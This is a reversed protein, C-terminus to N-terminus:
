SSCAGGRRLPADTEDPFVSVVILIEDRNRHDKGHYSYHNSPSTMIVIAHARGHFHSSICELLISTLFAKRFM